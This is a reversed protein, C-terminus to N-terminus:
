RLDIMPTNDGGAYVPLVGNWREAKKLEIYNESKSLQQNMVDIKYAEADALAKIKLAELEAAKLESEAQKIKKDQEVAFRKLEAEQKM